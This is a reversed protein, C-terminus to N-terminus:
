GQIWQTSTESWSFRLVQGTTMVVNAGSTTRFTGVGSATHVITLNANTAEILLDGNRQYDTGIGITQTFTATSISASAAPTIKVKTYGTVNITQLTGVPTLAAPTAYRIMQVSLRRPTIANFTYATDGYVDNIAADTLLPYYLGDGINRYTTIGVATFAGNSDQLFASTDVYLPALTATGTGVFISGPALVAPQYGGNSGRRFHFVAQYNTALDSRDIKGGDFFFRRYNNQVRVGEGNTTLSGFHEVNCGIM